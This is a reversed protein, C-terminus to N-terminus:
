DPKDIGMGFAITAVIIRVKNTQWERLAEEKEAPDMVAHYHRATLGKVGTQNAHHKIIFTYIDDVVKGKKDYILYKLNPRNFSQTFFAWNKLKLQKTIDDVM